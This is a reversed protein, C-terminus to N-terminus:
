DLNINTSIYLYSAQNSDIIIRIQRLSDRQLVLGKNTVQLQPQAYYPEFWFFRGFRNIKLKPKPKETIETPKSKLNKCKLIEIRNETKLNSFETLRFISIVCVCVYIYIDTNHVSLPSLLCCTGAEGRPSALPSASAKKFQPAM